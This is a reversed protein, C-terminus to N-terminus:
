GNLHAHYQVPELLRGRCGWPRLPVNAPSSAPPLTPSPLPRSPPSAAPLFHEWLLVRLRDPAEAVVFAALTM